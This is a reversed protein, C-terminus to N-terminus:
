PAVCRFIYAQEYEYQMRDRLSQFLRESACAPVYGDVSLRRAGVSFGERLFPTAIQDLTYTQMKGMGLRDIERKMHPLSPNGTYDTYTAYYIGSPKLAHKIQQAHDALDTILYVVSSSFALDFRSEYPLLTTTAVYEVPIQGKRKEAVQVSKRALDVGVGYAFPRERYLFRLFGGQNCGFDLISCGSLDEELIADLIKRWHRHHEDEMPQEGKSPETWWVDYLGHSNLRM